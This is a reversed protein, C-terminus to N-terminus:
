AEVEAPEGQPAAQHPGSQEKPDSEAKPDEPGPVARQRRGHAAAAVLLIVVAELVGMAEKPVNANIALGAQALTGFVLAAAILALPGSRGVMAVAIGSFGAGAGLGLEYYGKYGLVTGTVALGALAGSLLMAQVRRRAVPIGQAECAEPGKGVWAMERGVRSRGLWGYTAVTILVALPFALSAASGAFAGIWHELPALRAGAIIDATRLGTAGLGAVLVWPILVDACRNLMIGSIIEHVGLRARMVGAIASYSAGVAIATALVIPLAVPWPMGAPLHTGVFAGALSALALQGESGINFMGSRLAVHFALGTLMLPTAKFLVQGMGYATGWTGVFADRLMTAPAQEFLAALVNFVLLAGAIALAIRLQGPRLARV